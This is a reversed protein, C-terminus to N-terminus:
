SSCSVAIEEAWDPPLADYPMPERKQRRRCGGGSPAAGEEGGGAGGVGEDGRGADSAAGAAAATSAAPEVSAEPGDTLGFPDQLRRLVQRHHPSRIAASPNAHVPVLMADCRVGGAGGSSTGARRQGRAARSPRRGSVAAANSGPRLRPATRHGAPQTLQPEPLCACGSCRASTGPRRRLSPPRRSTTGCCTSPTPALCLRLGRRPPPECRRAAMAAPLPRRRRRRRRRPRM